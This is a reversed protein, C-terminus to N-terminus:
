WLDQASFAFDKVWPVVDAARQQAADWDFTTYDNVQVGIMERWTSDTLRQDIPQAFQYFSYAPGSALRLTGDVPVIVTLNAITGTGIELVAGNPDTAIDTVIAAPFETTTFEVGGADEEHVAQWFHELQVGFSRILEFEDETPLEARLEKNAIVRLQEALQQLISLNDLDAQDPMGYLSLGASTGATTALISLWM